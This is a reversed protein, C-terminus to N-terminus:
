AAPAPWDVTVTCGAGPAATIAIQGGHRQVIARATALGAGVGEYDADRHLRQFTGFLAGARALDFGVGNDCVQLRVGGSPQAQGQVSIQALAPAGPGATFKFANGLLEALLQQVLVADGVLPPLDPDIDWQVARQPATSQLAAQMPELLPNLAVAMPQLPARGVRSLALLGDLMRGMRRASHDMTSLFALAEDRTAASLGADEELVERVLPGFSTIHRLPARLDHSVARLFEEQSATLDGLAQDREALLARLAAADLSFYRNSGPEPCGPLDSCEPIM